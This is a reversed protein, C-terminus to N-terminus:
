RGRFGGGRFGGGRFGRGRFGQGHFIPRSGRFFGRGASIHGRGQWFRRDFTKFGYLGFPYFQRPGYFNWAWPDQWYQDTAIAPPSVIPRPFDPSQPSVPAPPRIVQKTPPAPRRTDLIKPGEQQWPEAWYAGAARSGTLRPTVKPARGPQPSQQAQVSAGALFPVLAAALAMFLLRARLSCPRSLINPM